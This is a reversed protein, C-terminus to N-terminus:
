SCIGCLREIHFCDTSKQEEIERLQNLRAKIVSVTRQHSLAIEALPVGANSAGLLRKDEDSSWGTMTQLANIAVFLARITAPDNFPTGEPLLDGTVPDIGNALAEILPIAEQPTM